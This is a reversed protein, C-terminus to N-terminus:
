DYFCFSSGAFWVVCHKTEDATGDDDYDFDRDANVCGSPDGNPGIGLCAGPLGLYSWHHTSICAIQGIGDFDPILMGSTQDYMCANVRPTQDGAASTQTNAPLDICVFRRSEVPECLDATEPDVIQTPDRDVEDWPDIMGASSSQMGAASLSAAMVVLALLRFMRRM